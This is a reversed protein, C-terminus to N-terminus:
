DVADKYEHWSFIVKCIGIQTLFDFWQVVCARHVEM